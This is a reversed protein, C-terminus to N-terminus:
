SARDGSAARDIFLSGRTVVREGPSLGQVVEILGGAALGLAVGRAEIAGDPREVWVHARGGEYVVAGAPVAPASVARGTLIAFTAFMEPRLLGEANDIEARVPLRRTAPDLAAAVYSITARFTRGPLGVVRAELEQGKRIQAAESDRVQAILWVTSLDGIVFVPDSGASLYQGTGVKRQVITGAIPARIETEPSMAGSRAFAEIEAESKGLLRLRNKVAQLSAEAARQDSQAAIVDNQAQQWDKLAVARAQYLDQLRAAVTQNLKLLAANKALANAAAQYDNLAQVMDAAEITLLVQGAAVRDGARANVRLVRGAYPAYVPVNDDENVGIRGDASDEPQFARTAVPEITFGARQQKTPRFVGERPAAGSPADARTGGEGSGRLADLAGARWLLVGAAALVLVLLAPVARRVPPRAPRPNTDDM